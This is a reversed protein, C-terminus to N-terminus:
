IEDISKRNYNLLEIYKRYKRDLHISSDKYILNLIKEVQLNGGITLSRTNNNRDPHRIQLKHINVGINDYLFMQLGKIFKDTSIFSIQYKSANPYKKSYSKTICGDGDFYGRIFHTLLLKDLFTPFDLKFSKSQVVGLEHLRKSIHSNDIVFSYQPKSNGSKYKYKYYRIPKDPCIPARIIKLIEIDKEELTIKVINRKEENYGDAYLFGLTYAKHENDIIDFYNENIEYKKLKDVNSIISINNDKLIKTVKYRTLNSFKVISRISDGNKYKELVDNDDMNLKKNKYIFVM